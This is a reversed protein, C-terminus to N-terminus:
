STAQLHSAKLPTLPVTYSGLPKGKNDKPHELELKFATHALMRLSILFPKLNCKKSLSHLAVTQIMVFTQM